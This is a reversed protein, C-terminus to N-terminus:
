TNELYAGAPGGREAKAGSDIRVWGKGWSRLQAVVEAGLVVGVEVVDVAILLGVAAESVDTVRVAAATAM